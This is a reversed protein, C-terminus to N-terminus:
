FKNQGRGKQLPLDESAGGGGMKYGGGGGGGGGDGRNTVM